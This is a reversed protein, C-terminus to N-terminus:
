PTAGRFAQEIRERLHNEQRARRIPAVVERVLPAREESTRRAQRTRQVAAESPTMDADDGAHVLRRIWRIM